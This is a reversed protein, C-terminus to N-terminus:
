PSDPKDKRFVFDVPPVPTAPGRIYRHKKRSKGQYMWSQDAFLNLNPCTHVNIAAEKRERSEPSSNTNAGMKFHGLKAAAGNTRQVRLTSSPLAPLPKEIFSQVKAKAADTESRARSQFQQITSVTRSGIDGPESRAQLREIIVPISESSDGAESSPHIPFYLRDSERKVQQNKTFYSLSSPMLPLERSLETNKSTDRKDFNTEISANPNEAKSSTDFINSKKSRASVSITQDSDIDWNITDHSRSHRKLSKETLVPFLSERSATSEASQESFRVDFKSGSVTRHNKRKSNTEYIQRKLRDLRERQDVSLIFDELVDSDSLSRSRTLGVHVAAPLQLKETVDQKDFNRKGDLLHEGHTAVRHRKSELRDSNPERGNTSGSSLLQSKEDRNMRSMVPFSLAESMREGDRINRLTSGKGDCMNEDSQRQAIDSTTQRFALTPTPNSACGSQQRGVENTSRRGTETFTTLSAKPPSHAESKRRNKGKLHATEIELDHSTFANSLALHREEANLAKDRSKNRRLHASRHEAGDDAERRDWGILSSANFSEVTNVQGNASSRRSRANAEVSPSICNEDM